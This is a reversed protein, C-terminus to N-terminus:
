HKGLCKQCASICSQVGYFYRGYNWCLESNAPITHKAIFLVDAKGNVFVSVVPRLVPHKKSHNLYKGFTFKTNEDHYLFHAVRLCNEVLSFEILYNRASQSLQAVQASNRAEGGYNCVIVGAKIETDTYVGRGEKLGTKIVLGPWNQKSIHQALDETIIRCLTSHPQKM